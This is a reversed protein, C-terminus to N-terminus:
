CLFHCRVTDQMIFSYVLASMAIGLIKYFTKFLNLIQSYNGTLAVSIRAILELVEICGDSQKESILIEIAM